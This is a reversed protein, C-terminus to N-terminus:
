APPGDDPPDTVVDVLAPSFRGLQQDVHDAADISAIPNGSITTVFDTGAVSALDLDTVARITATRPVQRLLAIEGFGSGRELHNVVRGDGVVEAEGREIVYYQDGVDGQHFVEAGANVHQHDLVRALREVSPLPLPRLIPLHRLLDIESNPSTLGRDMRRLQLWGIAVVAPCLAGIVILAHRLGLSALVVPTVVAGISVALSNVGEFVAFVQVLVRAAAIRAILTFAGADVFSNGVGVLAV